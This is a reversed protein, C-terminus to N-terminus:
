PIMGLTLMSMIVAVVVAAFFLGVTYLLAQVIPPLDNIEIM